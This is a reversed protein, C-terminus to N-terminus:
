KKPRRSTEDIIRRRNPLPLPPAFPPLSRSRSLRVGNSRCFDRLGADYGTDRYFRGHPRARSRASPADTPSADTGLRGAPGTLGASPSFRQGRICPPSPRRAPLVAHTPLSPPPAQEPPSLAQHRGRRPHRPLLRPRLQQLHRAAAGQGARAAQPPHRPGLRQPRPTHTQMRPPASRMAVVQRVFGEFERWVVMTNQHTDLPSHLVLSDIYTTQLNRLSAELSQQVQTALPAKTDYPVNKPDQGRIPTFKTQIFIEERKIGDEAALRQLAQGVGPEYYHKPQCATDIGRFGARVAAVVLDCTREKKWATGYIINPMKATGMAAQTRFVSSRFLESPTSYCWFIMSVASFNMETFGATFSLLSSAIFSNIKINRLFIVM